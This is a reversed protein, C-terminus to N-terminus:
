FGAYGGKSFGGKCFTTGFTYFENDAFLFM